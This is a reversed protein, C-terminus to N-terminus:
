YSSRSSPRICSLVREFNPDGSRLLRERQNAVEWGDSRPHPFWNDAGSSHPLLRLLPRVLCRSCLQLLTERRDCGMKPLVFRCLVNPFEVAQFAQGVIKVADLQSLEVESSCRRAEPPESLISGVEELQLGRGRDDLLSEGIPIPIHTTVFSLVHGGRDLPHNRHDRIFQTCFLLFEPGLFARKIKLFGQCLWESWKSSPGACRWTLILLSSSCTASWVWRGPRM